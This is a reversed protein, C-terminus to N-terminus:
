RRLYREPNRSAGGQWMEFHLHPGTSLGTSGVWGLREGSGVRAGVEVGIREMHGYLTTWGRAHAVRVFNGLVRDFGAEVVEGAAAALIATGTPAALDLGRHFHPHGGFPDARMGYGSTLRFDTLPFRFFGPNLFFAREAGSFEAGPFFHFAIPEAAGFAAGGIGVVFSEGEGAPLRGSVLLRELDSAPPYPVFLGPASPLLLIMGPRLADTGGLRNLSAITAVPISARAAISLLDDGEAVSYSFVSLAAAITEATVDQRTGRLFVLRRNAEVDAIYQRFGADQRNLRGIAPFGGPLFDGASPFAGVASLSFFLLLALARGKGCETM